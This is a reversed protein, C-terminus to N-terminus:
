QCSGPVIRMTEADAVTGRFNGVGYPLSATFSATRGFFSLSRSFNFIALNARATADTIPVTGDFLLDGDLFSYSITVANSHIPTILYARPALDQARCNGRGAALALCLVLAWCLKRTITRM